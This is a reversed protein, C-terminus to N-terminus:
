ILAFNMERKGKAVQNNAKYTVTIFEALNIVRNRNLLTVKYYYCGNM